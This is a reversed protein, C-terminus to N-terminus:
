RSIAYVLDQEVGNHKLYGKIQVDGRQQGRSATVATQVRVDHGLSRLLPKLQTMAWDQAQMSAAM